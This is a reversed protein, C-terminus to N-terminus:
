GWIAWGIFVGLLVMALLIGWVYLDTRSAWPVMRFGGAMM